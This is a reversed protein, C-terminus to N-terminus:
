ASAPFAVREHDLRHVQIAAVADAAITSARRAIADLEGLPERQGVFASRSSHGDVIRAGPHPRPRKREWPRAILVVPHERATGRLCSRSSSCGSRHAGVLARFLTRLTGHEGVRGLRGTLHRIRPYHERVFPLRRAATATSAMLARRQVRLPEGIGGAAHRARQVSLGVQRGGNRAGRVADVRDPM